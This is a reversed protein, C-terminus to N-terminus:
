TMGALKYHLGYPDDAVLRENHTPLNLRPVIGVDKPVAKIQPLMVGSVILSNQRRSAMDKVSERMAMRM